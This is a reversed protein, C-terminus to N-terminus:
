GYITVLQEPNKPNFNAEIELLRVVKFDSKVMKRAKQDKKAPNPSCFANNVLTLWQDQKPHQCIAEIAALFQNNVSYSKQPFVEYTKIDMPTFQYPVVIGGSPMEPNLGGVLSISLIIDSDQYNKFDALTYGRQFHITVKQKPFFLKPFESSEDELLKGEKPYAQLILEQLLKIHSPASSNRHVHFTINIPENKSRKAIKHANDIYYGSILLYALNVQAENYHPLSSEKLPFRDNDTTIEQLTIGNLIPQDLVVAFNAWIQTPSLQQTPKAGEINFVDGALPNKHLEKLAIQQPLSLEPQAHGLFPLVLLFLFKPLYFRM